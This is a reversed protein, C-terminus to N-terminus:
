ILASFATATALNSSRALQSAVRAIPACVPLALESPCGAPALGPLRERDRPDQGVTMQEKEM